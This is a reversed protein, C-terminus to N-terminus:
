KSYDTLAETKIHEEIWDTIIQLVKDRELDNHLEHFGKDFLALEALEAKKAFAISSKHDTLEDDTGHLILTPIKLIRANELAWLGAKMVTISFNPSVMDHVLPDLKYKEVEEPLRSISKPDLGSPLTISPAIKQFVKGLFLKWKPPEFGLRLFPSSLISGKADPQNKLLYNVVLNGGMSHGYIFVPLSSAVDKTKKFMIDLVEMLQPYGPCHGRKGSSNGHGFNDYALVGIHKALLESIMFDKYRGLHEGMGHVLLVMAKCGKPMWYEGYLKYSGYKSTFEKHQM